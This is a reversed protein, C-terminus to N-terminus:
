DSIPTERPHSSYAVKRDRFRRVAYFVVRGTSGLSLAAIGGLSIGLYKYHSSRGGWLMVSLMTVIVGGVQFM